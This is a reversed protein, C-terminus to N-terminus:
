FLDEDRSLPSQCCHCGPWSKFNPDLFGCTSSCGGEGMLALPVSELLGQPPPSRPTPPVSACPPSNVDELDKQLDSESPSYTGTEQGGSSGSSAGCSVIGRIKGKSVLEEKRGPTFLPFLQGPSRASACGWPPGPDAPVPSHPPAHEATGVTGPQRLSMPQGSCPRAGRSSPIMWGSHSLWATRVGRAPTPAPPPSTPSQRQPLQHLHSMPSLRITEEGRRAPSPESVLCCREPLHSRASPVVCGTRLVPRLAVTALPV